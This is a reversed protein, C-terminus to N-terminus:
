RRKKSLPRSSARPPSVSVFSLAHRRVPTPDRRQKGCRDDHTSDSGPCRRLRRLDVQILKPRGLERGIAKRHAGGIALPVLPESEHDPEVVRVIREDDRASRAFPKADNMALEGPVQHPVEAQPVVEHDEHVNGIVEDQLGFVPEVKGRESKRRGFPRASPSM